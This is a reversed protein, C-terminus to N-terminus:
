VMKIDRCYIKRGEELCWSGNTPPAFRSVPSAMPEMAMMSPATMSASARKRALAVKLFYLSPPLSPTHRSSDVLPCELVM